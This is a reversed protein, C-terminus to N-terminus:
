PALTQIQPMMQQAMQTRQIYEQTIQHMDWFFRSIRPANFRLFGGILDGMQSDLSQQAQQTGPFNMM